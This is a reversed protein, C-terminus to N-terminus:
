SRKKRRFPARRVTSVAGLCLGGSRPDPRAESVSAGRVQAHRNYSNKVRVCLAGSQLAPQMASPHLVAAGFYALETAEDFTLLPIPAALAVMRPDSTLVGAGGPSSGSLGRRACDELGGGLLMCAESVSFTVCFLSLCPLARSKRPTCAQKCFCNKSIAHWYSSSVPRDSGRSPPAGDVDKWVQVEAVELAAGILTATLDSGGRGLTTIAGPHM